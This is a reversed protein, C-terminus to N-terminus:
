KKEEPMKVSDVPLKMTFVVQWKGGEVEKASMDSRLGGQPEYSRIDHFKILGTEPTLTLLGLETTIRVAEGDGAFNSKYDKAITVTTYNAQDKRRFSFERGAVVDAPVAFHMAATNPKVKVM